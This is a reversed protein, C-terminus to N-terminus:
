AAEARAVSLKRPQAPQYALRFHPDCYPRAPDCDAGCYRFGHDRPDGLPWRCSASTLEMITVRRSIPIAMAILEIEPQILAEIEPAGTGHKLLGTVTSIRAVPNERKIRLPKINDRDAPMGPKYKRPTAIGLRHARGIVSNRTAGGGLHAAIYSSSLGDSKLKRLIADREPTWACRAIPEAPPPLFHISM